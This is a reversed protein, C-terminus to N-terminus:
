GIDMYKVRNPYAICAANTSWILGMATLPTFGSLIKRTCFTLVHVNSFIRGLLTLNPVRVYINFAAVPIILALGVLLIIMNADYISYVRLLLLVPNIRCSCKYTLLLVRYSFHVCKLHFFLHNHGFHHSFVGARRM